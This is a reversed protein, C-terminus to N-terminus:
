FPVEAKSEVASYPSHRSSSLVLVCVYSLEDSMKTHNYSGQVVPGSLTFDNSGMSLIPNGVRFSSKWEMPASGQLSRLLHQVGLVRQQYLGGTYRPVHTFTMHHIVSDLCTITTANFLQDYITNFHFM